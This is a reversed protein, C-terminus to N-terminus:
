GGPPEEPGEEPRRFRAVVQAKMAAYGDRGVLAIALFFCVYSSGYLSAAAFWKTQPDADLLPVLFVFIWLVTSVVFAVIAGTRKSM